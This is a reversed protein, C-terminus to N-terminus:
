LMAQLVDSFVRDIILKCVDCMFIDTSYCWKLPLGYQGDLCWRSCLQLNGKHWWLIPDALPIRHYWDICLVHLVTSTQQLNRNSWPLNSGEGVYGGSATIIYVHIYSWWSYRFMQVVLCHLDFITEKSIMRKTLKQVIQFYCSRAYYLCRLINNPDQCSIHQMSTLSEVWLPVLTFLFSNGIVPFKWM